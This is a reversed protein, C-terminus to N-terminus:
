WRRRKRRLRVEEVVFQGFVRFILVFFCASVYAMVGYFVFAVPSEEWSYPTAGGPRRTPFSVSAGKRALHVMALAILVATVVLLRRSTKDLAPQRPAPM